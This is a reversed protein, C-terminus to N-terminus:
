TVTLSLDATTARGPLLNVEKSAPRHGAASATIRLPSPRADLWLDYHGDSDTRVTHVRRDCGTAGAHAAPCIQVTAGALPAGTRKDTITGSLHGWTRPITVKLSVKVSAGAYPADTSYTLRATYTGATAVASADTRVTVTTSRGPALDFSTRDTSLWTVDDGDCQDHGPLVEASSATESLSIMGGVRYIGCGGGARFLTSATNPLDSWTNSVPDYEVVTNVADQAAIGGVAQLRGDNGSAIAGWRPDPMDAARTWTDASPSYRYTEGKSDSGSIGGACVLEGTIGACAAREMDFPYDALRTWTDTAPTYRFVTSVMDTCGSGTCGGIVYLSGDLVTVNPMGVAQPLDALRTWTDTTPHYAYLTARAGGATWGGVVYMTGNVFAGGPSELAEPLDAIPTWADTSPDHVYGRSLYEGGFLASVGGVSYVKGQYTGVANDMVPEPYDAIGTWPGTSASASATAAATAAATATAPQDSSTSKPASSTSSMPGPAYNGKVRLTPAGASSDSTTTPTGTPSTYGTSQEGLNVHLPAQGKNTFTVKRSGSGGLTESVSLADSSVKLRGAKLTRDFRNVKDPRTTLTGTSTSYRAAATRYTHRGTPESFLWYYGDALALDDPTAVTTATAYRDATDTVTAPTIADGTNGDVVQGAVIGGSVAACSGVTVTDLQWLSLGSGSYHFRVKVHKAGAAQPLPVEAHGLYEATDRHWVTTWTAGSDLSLDVDAVSDKGAAYAADFGLVPSNQGVLSFVPSVLETDEPVGGRGYPNASAWNGTGGTFNWVSKDAFDWAAGDTGHNVVTWGHEPTTGTWGEFGTEAPYDHGPAVCAALDVDSAVDTRVDATGVPVSLDTSRYGPYVPAVHIKYTAKEPLEVSYKGTYPDTHLAGNPYGDITIKSYLPWGHGSGDKVTGSVTRTPLKVLALDATTSQNEAVSVGSRTNERYGFDTATIRYDGVAVPLSYTGDADTTVRYERGDTGEESIALGAGALPAGSESDTVRGSLTGHVGFALASVGVPTGLGTPGDWGVGATCTVTSCDDNSGTTVDALGSANIYPYTVPYTDEVPTGALAYMAAILPASLSTGGVQLWGDQGVTSYVALGTAPDAVASVDATARTDCGTGLGRQYAPQAEYLSCGSGGSAWASETWGRETGEARTLRTGGAAVVNPNTAPWNQVHGTDGTSAVVAVGPHDYHHDYATQFAGEGPLGYSNSVYKAGLRVATDVAAGLDDLSASDGQVLLIDCAPCAASVADLDLATELAWGADDAPYDTGGNQDVKRFCGNATTCEPLGYHERYEALDAEANSNGYADVIAVTRGEGGAPLSYAAQIDAPSLATSPPATAQPRVIHDSATRVDAFCQAVGDKVSPNNCGAPVYNQPVNDQPVANLLDSAKSSDADSSASSTPTAAAATAPPIAALAGAGLCGAILLSLPARVRARRSSLM